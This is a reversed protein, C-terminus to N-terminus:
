FIEDPAVASTKAKEKRPIPYAQIFSVVGEGFRKRLTKIFEPEVSHAFGLMGKLEALENADLQNQLARYVATHLKRKREHGISVGGANTLTLGTVRRGFKSTVYTTKDINLRLRPFSLGRLIGRVTKEVDRLHGLRPASFTLDDAYRTYVVKDAAVAEVVLADFEHMLANSVFPSCPSGIALQLTSSGKPLHFILRGSMEVDHVESLCETRECYQKWDHLKISPFFEAFDLKLIPGIGAHPIANERISSGERYATASPHVPLHKLLVDNLARQLIKVEKAPQSVLRIGGGRKDIPYTKYRSPATRVIRDVLGPDIGTEIALTEIIGSM